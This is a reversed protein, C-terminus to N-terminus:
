LKRSCFPCHTIPLSIREQKDCQRAYSTYIEANKFDLSVYLSRGYGVSEHRIVIQSKTLCDCRPDEEVCVWDPHDLYKLLKAAEGADGRRTFQDDLEAKTVNLLETGAKLNPLDKLLTVKYKTELM